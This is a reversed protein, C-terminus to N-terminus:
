ILKSRVIASVRAGEAKQGVQGMVSGIVKGMDAQSTAGLRTISDEIVKTLEEDSIQQPLYTQLIKMEAEEKSALDERNGKRFSEISEKRQKVAKQIVSIVDENVLDEGKQIKLNTIESILLRLTSVKIEDRDLQAQKLDQRLQDEM